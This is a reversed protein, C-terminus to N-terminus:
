AARGSHQINRQKSRDFGFDENRYGYVIGAILFYFVNIFDFYRYDIIMGGIHYCIMIAAFLTLIDRDFWPDNLGRRWKYRWAKIINVSFGLLLLVSILGEEALRGVYIDHIVMNYGMHKRVYGYFPINTGQNYFDRYDNYKFFGLGCIPHDRIMKVAASIFMMRNEITASKQLREQLFDSNLAQYLGLVGGVMSVIALGMLIRRYNPRLVGLSGLAVATALWPGRTFAYFVGLSVIALGILSSAKLLLARAKSIFMIFILLMMGMLQGNLPPHMVPGRSRGPQWLAGADPNLIQKPWILADIGFKEAISTIGFYVGMIAFFLMLNRIEAPKRIIYRGYLFGFFPSLSSIVWAHIHISGMLNLQVLVYVTHGLIFFDAWYPGSMKMREIVVRVGFMMIIWILLLRDFSFDPMGPMSIMGATRFGGMSLMWIMLVFSLDKNSIYTLVSLGSLGGLALVVALVGFRSMIGWAFAASGLAVSILLIVTILSSPGQSDSRIHNVPPLRAM